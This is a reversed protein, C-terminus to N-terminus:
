IKFEVVDGDQVIYEKGETRIFGKERAIQWSGIERGSPALSAESFAAILKDCHIVEAKIFKEGFDTHVAYGAEQANEGNKLTWARTEKGGKITYFTILDLIKYSLKILDDLKSKLELEKVEETSMEAIEEEMKIDILILPEKIEPMDVNGSERINFVCIVKKATLLQLHDLTEYREVNKAMIGEGLKTKMAEAVELEKIANKDGSKAEKRLKEVHKEITELDKMLLETNITEIDRQPNITKDVHIINEDEFARVIHLIAKVERIHALFQNGLGEGKHAEKVLGAIDVFQIITPTVKEPKIIQAINELRPDPVRVIGINPEITTFPYNSIDVPNKTLAKFLTSKGVNPLGIIGISFSM